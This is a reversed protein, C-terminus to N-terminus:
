NYKIQFSGHIGTTVLLSEIWASSLLSALRSFFFMHPGTAWSVHSVLSVIFVFPIFNFCLLLIVIHKKTILLAPLTLSFLAGSPVSPQIPLADALAIVNQGQRPLANLLVKNEFKCCRRRFLVSRQIM